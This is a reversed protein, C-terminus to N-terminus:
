FYSKRLYLVSSLIIIIILRSSYFAYKDIQQLNYGSEFLIFSFSDCKSFCSRCLHLVSSLIVITALGSHSFASEQESLIETGSLVHWRSNVGINEYNKDWKLPFLDHCVGLARQNWDMTFRLTLKKRKQFLKMWNLMFNVNQKRSQFLESIFGAPMWNSHHACPTRSIRRSDWIEHVLLSPLDVSQYKRLSLGWWKYYVRTTDWDV